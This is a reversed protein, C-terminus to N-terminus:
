GYIQTFEKINILRFLFKEIKNDLIDNNLIKKEQNSM